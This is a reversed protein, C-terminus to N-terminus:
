KAGEGNHMGPYRKGQPDIAAAVDGLDVNDLSINIGARLESRVGDLAEATQALRDDFVKGLAEIAGMRTDADNNGLKNLQRAIGDLAEAVIEAGREGDSSTNESIKTAIENLFDAQFCAAFDAAATQMFAGVLGPNARAYGEGFEADIAEVGKYLYTQATMSAQDMLLQPRSETM